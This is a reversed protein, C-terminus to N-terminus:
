KYGILYSFNCLKDTVMAPYFILPIGKLTFTSSFYLVIFLCCFGTLHNIFIPSHSFWPANCKSSIACPCYSIIGVVTHPNKISVILQEPLKTTMSSTITLKISRLPYCKIDFIVQIHSIMDIVPHLLKVDITIVYM